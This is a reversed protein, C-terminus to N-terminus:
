AMPDSPSPPSGPARPREAVMSRRPWASPEKRRNEGAGVSRACEPHEPYRREGRAQDLAEAECAKLHCQHDGRDIQATKEERQRTPAEGIADTHTRAQQAPQQDARSPKRG